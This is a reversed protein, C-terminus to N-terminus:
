SVPANRVAASEGGHFVRPNYDIREHLRTALRCRDPMRGTAAAGFVRLSGRHTLDGPRMRLLRWGRAPVDLYSERAAEKV